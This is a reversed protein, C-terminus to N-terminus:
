TRSLPNRRTKVPSHLHIRRQDSRSFTKFKPSTHCVVRSIVILPIKELIYPVLNLLGIHPTHNEEVVIIRGPIEHNLNEYGHKMLRRNLRRTNHEFHVVPAPPDNPQVRVINSASFHSLYRIQSTFPFKGELAQQFLRLHHFRRILNLRNEIIRIELRLRLPMLVNCGLMKEVRSQSVIQGPSHNLFAIRIRIRNPSRQQLIKRLIQIRRLINIRNEGLSPLINDLPRNIMQTGHAPILNRRQIKQHRNVIQILRKCGVIQTFRPHLTQPQQLSHGMTRRLILIGLLIRGPPDSRNELPGLIRSLRGPGRLLLLAASQLLKGNIQSGPGLGTLEFGEDAPLIDHLPRQLHEAPPQLVIRDMHPIGPHPFRSNGLTQCAADHLSPNRRQERPMTDPREIHTRQQRSSAVPPIELLPDLLHDLFELCPLVHNEKDILNMRHDTRTRSRPSTHISRIQKFRRKHRPLDAADPTRSVILELLEELLIMRQGPPKLPDIHRFRSPFLSVPNKQPQATSILSMVPHGVAILRQLRRNIKRILKEILLM